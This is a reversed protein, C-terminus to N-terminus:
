PKPQAAAQGGALKELETVQSRVKEADQAAPAFKLYDRMSAAAGSYDRRDALIVGLLHNVKPMRHQTDLKQAERASKEAEDLKGLNLYAVSNYFYAQPFDYPDLKICRDTTDAVEQWKNERAAIGALQLYPKLFKGDASLAEGYSKRAEAPREQMEQALGLEFWAAAYKPYLTVAKELQKEADAFKKKRLADRGKEYAKKADKPAQLSTMSITTGEVNGLRHLLITGVDPNDMARRGALNVTESRYGPLTARLECAMLQQESLGRTNGFGGAQQNSGGRGPFGM